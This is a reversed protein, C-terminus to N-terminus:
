RTRSGTRQERHAQFRMAKLIQRGDRTAVSVAASAHKARAVAETWGIVVPTPLGARAEAPLTALVHRLFVQQTLAPSLKRVEEIADQLEALAQHLEERVALLAADGPTDAERQAPRTTRKM